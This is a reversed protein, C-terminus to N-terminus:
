AAAWAIAAPVDASDFVKVEGPFMWGFMSLAHRVWDHNTAIACRKWKSHADLGLKADELGAGVSFGEFQDGLVYVFRVEGREQIMTQVARDLVDRYDSRELKGVAEFALVSDPSDLKTLMSGGEVNVLQQM